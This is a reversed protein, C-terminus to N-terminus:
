ITTQFDRNFGVHEVSYKIFITMVLFPLNSLLNPSFLLKGFDINFYLTLFIAIASRRSNLTYGITFVYLLSYFNRNDVLICHLCILLRRSNLTFAIPIM